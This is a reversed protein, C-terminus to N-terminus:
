LRHLTAFHNRLKKYLEEITRKYKEKDKEVFYGNKYMDAVKYAAIMDGMKAAKDFYYFAKEYDRTGTRGYYWIYGLNSVAYINNSEAAMEYYKLALDFRKQEYYMAGLDVMYDPDGTKAILYEMAETFMFIDEDTPATKKYFQRCIDRAENITM